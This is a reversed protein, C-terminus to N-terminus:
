TEHVDAPALSLGCSVGPWCIRLQARLGYFTQKTMEDYGFASEEPLLHCRYARAFRCGPLPFSDALSILPDFGIRSRLLYQWLREKAVWLTAVQPTFPTRHVERLTPFWEQYHRKFYAYLANEADIGLFAGVIEMTLVESDSLTPEPGRERLKEQEMFWDDVECFVAIIFTSLDV